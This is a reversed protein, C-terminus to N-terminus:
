RWLSPLHEPQQCGLPPPKYHFSCPSQSVQVQIEVTVELHTVKTLDGLRESGGGKYFSPVDKRVNLTNCLGTSQFAKCPHSTGYSLVIPM